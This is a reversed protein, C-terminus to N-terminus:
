CRGLEELAAAIREVSPVYREELPQAFPVPTDPATVRRVPADLDYFALDALRAAVEAGIGSTGTDEHVVLARGTRRVSALVTDADFPHVTRLDVVEAEIGCRDAVRNAAEICRRLMGGYTIVTVDDGPRRVTAVGLPEDTAGRVVTGRLSRYLAKHEFFLVPNPDRMSARLLDYADQPTGPCVVKLGPIHAFVGEPSQSHFPGAGVGAGSPARVVLPVAIGFRYHLKAAETVLQDYACSIFDSFQLEVIPRWGSIALGIGAGVMAAEAIPTDIIRREGFRDLLGQTVRFAGGMRGIDQGLVVVRDDETLEDELAWRIAELFTSGASEATAPAAAPENDFWTRADRVAISM